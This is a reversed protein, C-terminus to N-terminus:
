HRLTGASRDAAGHQRCQSHQDGVDAGADYGDPQNDIDRFQGKDDQPWDLMNFAFWLQNQMPRACNSIWLPPSTPTLNQVQLTLPATESFTTTIKAFPALDLDDPVGDNDNDDDFLDPVGDGDTDDPVNNGDVDWELTDAVGDNNSDVNNPNTYWKKGGYTFGDVEQKDLLTAM